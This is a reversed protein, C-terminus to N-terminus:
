WGMFKKRLYEFTDRNLPKTFMDSINERTDVKTVKLNGAHVEDKFRFYKTAIHRTRHKINESTALIICSANDEFVLSPKLKPSTIEQKHSSIKSTTTVPLCHRLLAISSLEELIHRMPILTRMCTSLAMFEAETSSLAIETQLTSKWLIPCGAFMIVYGTRSLCSERLHSVSSHWRGAFDSDCYANLEFTAEPTCILGKERTLYLYRGIHKVAQEHSAKPNASYRACQHTAFAIDPRTSNALFMLKGIVSRYNWPQSREAGDADAHCIGAAPVYKPKAIRKPTTDPHLQLQQLISDILGSQTLEITGNDVNQRINIGLFDSLAGEDDIIFTRQLDAIVQVLAHQSKGVLICDDVYCLLLCDSRMFLCPDMESQRFGRELLGKRLHLWWNRAASKSGYLNKELKLVYDRVNNGKLQPPTWNTPIEMYMDRDCDAQTFAQVFDIQRTELHLINTLFLVLRVTSWSVVPAFVADYHIGPKQRSGDVCIRAKHKYVEGNVRRKRKYSWVARMYETGPRLSSRKVLKFVHAKDLGDLETGEAAIFSEKDPAKLMQSRTLTDENGITEANYAHPEINAQYADNDIHDDPVDCLRNAAEIASTALLARNEEKNLSHPRPRPVSLVYGAIDKRRKYDQFDAVRQAHDEQLQRSESRRVDPTILEETSLYAPLRFRTHSAHQVQAVDTSTQATLTTENASGKVPRGDLANRTVAATASQTRPASPKLAFPTRRGDVLDSNDTYLEEGNDNQVPRRRKYGAHVGEHDTESHFFSEFYYHEADYADNHEYRKTEWLHKLIRDAHEDSPQVTALSLFSDDVVCHYQPSTHTTTPNYVMLVNGSHVTSHGVYVGLQSRNHWKSLGGSNDQLRKDLVYAPCGFVHFDDATLPPKEGTFNEYSSLKNSAEKMHPSPMMNLINISQRIAFPWFSEDIVDPWQRMAHSLMTRALSTVAGITREAIGNQWHAGVGSRTFRQDKSELDEVFDKAVFTGNDSHLHQLQRGHRRAFAEYKLKGEKTEKAGTSEQFHPYIFRTAHDVFLTVCKYRRKTPLGRSTPMLGPYGAELQDTSAVAGPAISSHQESNRITSKGKPRRKAKAELCARCKPAPGRSLEKPIVGHQSLRICQDMSIHGLREHWQLLRRQRGSLRSDKSEKIPPPQTVAPPPQKAVTPLPVGSFAALMSALDAGEDCPTCWSDVGAATTLIPLNSVSDLPAEVTVM